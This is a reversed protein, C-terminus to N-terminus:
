GEGIGEGEAKVGERVAMSKDNCLSEWLGVRASVRVVVTCEPHGSCGVFVQRALM